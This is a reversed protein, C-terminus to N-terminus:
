LTVQGPKALTAAEGNARAMEAILDAAREIGAITAQENRFREQAARVCSNEDGLLDLPPIFSRDPLAWTALGDSVAHPESCGSHCFSRAVSLAAEVAM